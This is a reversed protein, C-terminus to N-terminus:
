LWCNVVDTHFALLVATVHVILGAKPVIEFVPNYVAGAAIQLPCITAATAVDTASGVLAPIARKVRAVEGTLKGTSTMPDALVLTVTGNHTGESGEPVMWSLM